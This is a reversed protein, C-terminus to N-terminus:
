SNSNTTLNYKVNKQHKSDYHVDRCYFQRAVECIKMKIWYLSNSSSGNPLVTELASIGKIEHWFIKESPLYPVFYFPLDFNSTPLNMSLTM